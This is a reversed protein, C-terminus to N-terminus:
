SAHATTAFAFRNNNIETESTGIVSIGARIMLREMMGDIEAARALIVLTDQTRWRKGERSRLYADITKGPDLNVASAPAATKPKSM